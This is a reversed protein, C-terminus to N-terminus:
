VEGIRLVIKGSRGQRGAHAAAERVDALSYTAEVSVLDRPVILALLEAALGRLQETSLARMARLRGYGRVVVDRFVVGKAPLRVEDSALLGYCVLAGGDAVCEFLRGASDGAVADLARLVGRGDTLSRVRAALDEEGVIVHSAGLRLLDEVHRESRVVAISRLGRREALAITLRGVASNAADLAIWDGEALGELLGAATFPNVSLMSAKVLDVDPPLPIVETVPRCVREAWNTGWPLAVRDGVSLGAVGEGLAAVIGAGEIGVTAPLTPCVMHRGSALLLDAPNVPSAMVDVAVEGALPRPSVVERVELVEEPAGFRTVFAQKMGEEEIGSSLPARRRGGLQLHDGDDPFAAFLV